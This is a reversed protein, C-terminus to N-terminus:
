LQVKAFNLKPLAFFLNDHPSFRRCQQVQKRILNLDRTVSKGGTKEYISLGPIIRDLKPDVRQWEKIQEELKPLIPWPSSTISVAGVSGAPGIRISRTQPNSHPLSPRRLRLTPNSKNRAVISTRFSRPLAPRASSPGNKPGFNKGNSISKINAKPFWPVAAPPFSVLTLIFSLRKM